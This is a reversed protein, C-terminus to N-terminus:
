AVELAYCDDLREFSPLTVESVTLKEQVPDVSRSVTLAVGTDVISVDAAGEGGAEEPTTGYWTKGLAGSPLMMVINDPYFKAAVGSENKYQKNYIVITVNLEEEVYSKVRKTTYNVTATVNQALVGSQVKASNKIYNFTTKSMLLVAPREGSAQEQADMATELDKLPDCTAAANWKDATTTIKLYHNAKWTGNPDYNYEYVAGGAVGINIKVDGNVPALLQMRMRETVVKAGSVLNDSDDYVHSIVNAAYPDNSDQIRLIEQRDEESMIMSERFFAMKTESVTIGSRGRITSKADFSSAALSVPLGKHGKFFKLDLGAKKDAPFFGEGLYPIKNSAVETYHDAVAQATFFESIKM